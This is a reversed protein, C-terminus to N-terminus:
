DGCGIIIDFESEMKKCVSILTKGDQNQTFQRFFKIDYKQNHKLELVIAGEDVIPPVNENNLSFPLPIRIGESELYYDLADWGSKPASCVFKEAVIKGRRNRKIEGNVTEAKVLFASWKEGQKNVVFVKENGLGIDGWIRIEIEHIQMKKDTLDVMGFDISVKKIFNKVSNLQKLLEPQEIPITKKDQLELESSHNGASNESNFNNSEVTSSVCQLNLLAIVFLIIFVFLRM